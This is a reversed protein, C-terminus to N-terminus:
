ADDDQSVGHDFKRLRESMAEWHTGKWYIRHCNPCEMYYQQTSFVYPPVRNRVDDRDRPFLTHNCELCITFPRLLPRLKLTDIVQFMQKESDDSEILIARVEGGTILRRKMIQTDRTLIVRDEDSAISMMESDDSSNFFLTDYGAMRLWRALKGVNADVIFRPTNM